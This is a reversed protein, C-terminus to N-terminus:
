NSSIKKLILKQKKKRLETSMDIYPRLCAGQNFKIFKHFKKLVLRRNLAQKLNKIHIVYEKKNCLNSILKKVKEAKNVELFFPFDNHLEHLNKSYQVDVELFYGENSKEDSNKIFDENFKFLDDIWKFGNVLLKQSILFNYM